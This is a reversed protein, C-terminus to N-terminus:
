CLYQRGQYLFPTAGSNQVSARWRSIRKCRRESNYLSSRSASPVQSKGFTSCSKRTMSWAVTVTTISSPSM